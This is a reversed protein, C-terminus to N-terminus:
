DRHALAAAGDLRSERLDSVAAYRHDSKLRGCRARAMWETQM